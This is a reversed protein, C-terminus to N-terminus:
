PYPRDSIYWQGDILKLELEVTYFDDYITLNPTPDVQDNRHCIRSELKTLFARAYDNEYVSIDVRLPAELRLEQSCDYASRFAAIRLREYDLASGTLYDELRSFDGSAYALARAEYSGALVAVIEGRESGSLPPAPTAPNWSSEPELRLVEEPWALTPASIM